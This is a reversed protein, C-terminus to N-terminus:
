MVARTAGATRCILKVLTPPAMGPPIPPEPGGWARGQRTPHRKRSSRGRVSVINRKCQLTPVSDAETSHLKTKCHLWTLASM